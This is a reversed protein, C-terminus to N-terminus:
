LQNNLTLNLCNAQVWLCTRNHWFWQSNEDKRYSKRMVIIELFNCTPNMKNLRYRFFGTSRGATSQHATASKDRGGVESIYDEPKLVAAEWAHRADARTTLSNELNLGAFYLLQKQLRSLTCFSTMVKFGCDFMYIVFSNNMTIIITIVSITNMEFPNKRM